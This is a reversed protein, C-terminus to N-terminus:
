MGYVNLMEDGYHNVAKVPIKGTAPRDVPLSRTSYLASLASEDVEARLARRLKEYPEDAGAAPWHRVFNYNL